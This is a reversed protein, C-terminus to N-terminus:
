GGTVRLPIERDAMAELVIADMLDPADSFLGICSRNQGQESRLYVVVDAVEGSPLDPSEFEIRGGPRIEVTKRIPKRM